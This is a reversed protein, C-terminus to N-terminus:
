RASADENRTRIRLVQRTNDTIRFRDDIRHGVIWLIKKNTELVWVKEKEALSLKQDILFRALKKKKRMGLPYFYDGARWRRLLLPFAIDKADLCAVSNEPSPPDGSVPLWQLQLTGGPYDINGSLEEILINAPDASHLPSLILWQRDKLLRHTNSCLYKGSPCDLLAAIGEMQGGTFGYPTFVEHLLTPLAESKKLKLVPIHTESGKAVLLNKKQREIASRYIIEIGRFRSLNEALNRFAAPYAREVLPLVQHRFFNRAYKDSENSSDEVWALGSGAAFEQLEQRGAFLLPRVIAGQSPLMGRLGSLGTGRFFNMVMTEINDDLHHATVIIGTGWKNIIDRFWEYRLERAAVQISQRNVAAVAETDFSRVLVECDYRQGLQRVFIEDRASEAGRLRFNCHAITFTFGAQHCLECLVTSDLGGSVAILLRDGSSFLQERKIFEKFAGLLKMWDGFNTFKLLICGIIRSEPGTPAPLVVTALSSIAQKPPGMAYM